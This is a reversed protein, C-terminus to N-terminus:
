LCTSTPTSQTTARVRGRNDFFFTQYASVGCAINGGLDYMVIAPPHLREQATQPYGMVGVGPATVPQGDRPWDGNDVTLWGNDIRRYHGWGQNFAVLGHKRLVAYTQARTMGVPIEARVESMLALAESKETRSWSGAALVGVLAFAGLALVTLTARNWDIDGFTTKM